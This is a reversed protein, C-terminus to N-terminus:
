LLYPVHQVVEKRGKGSGSDKGRCRAHASSPVRFVPFLYRKM